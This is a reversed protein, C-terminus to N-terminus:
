LMRCLDAPASPDALWVFCNSGLAQLCEAVAARSESHLILEYNVGKPSSATSVSDSTARLSVISSLVSFEPDQLCTGGCRSLSVKKYLQFSSYYINMKTTCIRSHM